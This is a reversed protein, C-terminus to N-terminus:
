LFAAVGAVLGMGIGAAKAIATQQAAGGKSVSSSSATSSPGASGSPTSSPSQSGSPLTTSSSNPPQTVSSSSSSSNPPKPASSSTSSTTITASSGSPTTIPLIQAPTRTSTKSDSSASTSASPSPAAGAKQIISAQAAYFSTLYSKQAEPMFNVYLPPSPKPTALAAARFAAEQSALQSPQIAANALASNVASMAPNTAEPKTYSQLAAMQSPSLTTPKPGAQRKPIHGQQAQPTAAASILSLYTLFPLVLTTKM